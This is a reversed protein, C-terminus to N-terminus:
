HNEEQVMLRCKTKDTYVNLDMEKSTRYFKQTVRHLTIKEALLNLVLLYKVEAMWNFSQRIRTSKESWM